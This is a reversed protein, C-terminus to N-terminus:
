SPLRLYQTTLLEASAWDVVTYRSSPEEKGSASVGPPISHNSISYSGDRSQQFAFFSARGADRSFPRRKAKNLKSEFRKRYGNATRFSLCFNM